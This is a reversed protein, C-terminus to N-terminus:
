RASLWRLIDSNLQTTFLNGPLNCTSFNRQARLSMICGCSRAVIPLHAAPCRLRPSNPCFHAACRCLTPWNVFNSTKSADGHLRVPERRAAELAAFLSEFHVEVCVSTAQLLHDRGLLDRLHESQSFTFYQGCDLTPKACTEPVSYPIWIFM